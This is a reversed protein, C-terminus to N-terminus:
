KKTWTETQKGVPQGGVASTYDGEVILTRGDPSLAAKTTGFLQGNMKLVATLHLADVRRIAMTEGSPKGAIMVPVDTGDFPSEVVLLTDAGNIPVHYTLRRGGNCCPEVVMTMGKPASADPKRVWTGVGMQARVPVDSVLALITAIGFAFVASRVHTM